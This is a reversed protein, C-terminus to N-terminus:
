WHSHRRRKPSREERRRREKRARRSRMHDKLEELGYDGFFVVPFAIREGQLRDVENQMGKLCANMVERASPRNAPIMNLCSALLHMIDTGYDAFSERTFRGELWQGRSRSDNCKREAERPNRALYQLQHDLWMNNPGLDIMSFVVAAIQWVGHKPSFPYSTNRNPHISPIQWYNDFHGKDYQEPPDCIKTGWERWKRSNREHNMSTLSALGFDALKATPYGRMLHHKYPNGLLINADKIDLHLVFMPDSPGDLLDHELVEDIENEDRESLKLKHLAHALSYLVGWVYLLPIREVPEHPHKRARDANYKQYVEILGFIDGNPCYETYFRWSNTSGLFHVIKRLVPVYPTRRSFFDHWFAERPISERGYTRRLMDVKVRPDSEKSEKIAISDIVHGRSDFRKWLGVTGFAGKGLLQVGEWIENSDDSVLARSTLFNYADTNFLKNGKLEWRTRRRALKKRDSTWSATRYATNKDYEHIINLNPHKNERMRCGEEHQLASTVNGM